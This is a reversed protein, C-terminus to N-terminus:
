HPDRQACTFTAGSHGPQPIARPRPSRPEVRWDNIGLARETSGAIIRTRNRIPLKRPGLILLRHQRKGDITKPNGVQPLFNATAGEPYTPAPPPNNNGDYSACDPVNPNPHDATMGDNIYHTNMWGRNPEGTRPVTPRTQNSGRYWIHNNYGGIPVGWSWCEVAMYDGAYIGLDTVRRTNNQTDTRFWVGDPPSESTNMAPHAQIAAVAIGIGTFTTIGCVTAVVCLTALLRHRWGGRRISTPLNHSPMRHASM